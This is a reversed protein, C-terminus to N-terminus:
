KSVSTKKHKILVMKPILSDRKCASLYVRELYNPKGYTVLLENKCKRTVRVREKVDRLPPCFTTVSKIEPDRLIIEIGSVFDKLSYKM